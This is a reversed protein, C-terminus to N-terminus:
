KKRYIRHILKLQNTDKISNLYTDTPCLKIATINTNSSVFSIIGTFRQFYLAIFANIRLETSGEIEYKDPIQHTIYKIEGRILYVISTVEIGEQLKVFISGPDYDPIDINFNNIKDPFEEAKTLAWDIHQIDLLRASQFVWRHKPYREWCEADTLPIDLHTLIHLKTM